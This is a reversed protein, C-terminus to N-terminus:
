YRTRKLRRGLLHGNRVEQRLGIRVELHPHAALPALDLGPAADHLDLTRCQALPSLDELDGTGALLLRELDLRGLADLDTLSGYNALWLTRLRPARDAVESVSRVMPLGSLMLEHLGDLPPMLDWTTRSGAGSIQLERM